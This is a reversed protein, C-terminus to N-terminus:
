NHRVAGQDHLAVAGHQELDRMGVGVVGAVLERDEGLQLAGGLVDVGVADRPQPEPVGAGGPVRGCCISSVRSLYAFNGTGCVTAISM